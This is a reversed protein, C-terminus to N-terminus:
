RDLSFFYRTAEGGSTPGIDFFYPKERLPRAMTERRVCGDDGTGWGGNREGELGQEFVSGSGQCRNVTRSCQSLENSGYHDGTDPARSPTWGAPCERYREYGPKGAGGEPCTPWSFGPKKMASILREM